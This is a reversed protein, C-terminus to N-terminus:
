SSPSISCHITSVIIWFVIISIIASIIIFIFILSVGLDRSLAMNVGVLLVLQWAAHFVSKFGSIRTQHSAFVSALILLFFIKCIEAPQIDIPMLPIDLWSKNGTGNDTGFPILLLLLFLNALVLQWRRESFFETDINTIVMYLAVGILAAVIQIIVYRTAGM